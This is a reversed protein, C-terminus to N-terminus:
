RRRKFRGHGGRNIKLRVFNNSLPHKGKNKLNGGVNLEKELEQINKRQYVEEDEEGYKYEDDDLLVNQNQYNNQPQVQEQGVDSEPKRKGRSLAHIDIEDLEDTFTLKESKLKARRTSRKITKIKNRLKFHPDFIQQIDTDIQDDAHNDLKNEPQSINSENTDIKMMMKMKMESDEVLGIDTDEKIEVSRSMESGEEDDILKQLDTLNRKLKSFDKHIEFLSRGPRRIIPSPEDNVSEHSVSKEFVVPKEHITSVGNKSESSDISHMRNEMNENSDTDGNESDDSWEDGIIIEDIHHLSTSQSRLYRPTEMLDPGKNSKKPTVNFDLRRSSSELDKFRQQGNASKSPTRFIEAGDLPPDLHNGIDSLKIGLNVATNSNTKMPSTEIKEPSTQIDFITLVRGNLQPTPGIESVQVYDEGEEEEEASYRIKEDITESKMHDDDYKVSEEKRKVSKKEVKGTDKSDDLKDLKHKLMSYYRNIQDEMQKGFEEGGPNKRSDLDDHRKILKRLKNYVALKTEVPSGRPVATGSYTKLQTKLQRSYRKLLM